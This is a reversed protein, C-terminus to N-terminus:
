QGRSRSMPCGAKWCGPWGRCRTRPCCGSRPDNPGLVTPCRCALCEAYIGSSRVVCGASCPRSCSSMVRDFDVRVDWGDGARTVPLRVRACQSGRAEIRITPTGGYCRTSQSWNLALRHRVPTKVLVPKVGVRTHICVHEARGSPGPRSPRCDIRNSSLMSRPCSSIWRPAGRPLEFGDRGGPGGSAPVPVVAAWRDAASLRLRRPMGLVSARPLWGAEVALIPRCIAVAGLCRKIPREEFGYLSKSGIDETIACQLVIRDYGWPLRPHAKWSALARAGARSRFIVERITSMRGRGTGGAPLRHRRPTGAVRARRGLAEDSAAVVSTRRRCM